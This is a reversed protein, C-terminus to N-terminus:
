CTYQPWEPRWAFHLEANPRLQDSSSRSSLLNGRAAPLPPAPSPTSPAARALGCSSRPFSIHRSFPPPPPPCHVCSDISYACSGHRSFPRQLSCASRWRLLARPPGTAFACSCSALVQAQWRRFKGGSLGTRLIPRRRQTVLRIWLRTNRSAALRWFEFPPLIQTFSFVMSWPTTSRRKKRFFSIQHVRCRHSAVNPLFRASESAPHRLIRWCPLMRPRYRKSASKRDFTSALQRTLTSLTSFRMTSVRLWPSACTPTKWRKTPQRPATKAARLRQDHIKRAFVGCFARGATAARKLACRIAIPRAVSRPMHSFATSLSSARFLRMM